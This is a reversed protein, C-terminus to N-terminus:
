GNSLYKFPTMLDDVDQRSDVDGIDDGDPVDEGDDENMVKVM